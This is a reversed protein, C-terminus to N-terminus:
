YCTGCLLVPSLGRYTTTGLHTQAVRSSCFVYTPINTNTPSHAFTLIYSLVHLTHWPSNIPSLCEPTLHVLCCTPTLPLPSLNALSLHALTLHTPSIYTPCCAPTLCAPTLHSPHPTSPHPTSLLMCPHSMSPHPTSPQPMHPRLMHLHPTGPLMCSNYHLLHAHLFSIVVYSM